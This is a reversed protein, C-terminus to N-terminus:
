FQLVVHIYQQLKLKRRGCYYLNLYNLFIFLILDHIINLCDQMKCQESVIYEDNCTFRKVSRSASVPSIRTGEFSSRDDRLNLLERPRFRTTRPARELFLMKMLWTIGLIQFNEPRALRKWTDWNGIATPRAHM